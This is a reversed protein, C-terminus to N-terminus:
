RGTSREAHVSTSNIEHNKNKKPYTKVANRKKEECFEQLNNDNIWTFITRVTVGLEKAIKTRCGSHKEICKILNEKRVQLLSPIPALMKEIEEKTKPIIPVSIPQSEPKKNAFPWILHLAWTLSNIQNNLKDIKAVNDAFNVIDVKQGQNKASSNYILNLEKKLKAIEDQLLNIAYSM